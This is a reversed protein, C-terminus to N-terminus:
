RVTNSTDLMQNLARNAVRVVYKNYTDDLAAKLEPIAPRAKEGIGDLTIAAKLRVWEQKNQLEDTLVALARDTHRNVMFLGRAAVVRVVAAEDGLAKRLVDAAPLGDAELNGLGIAAWYRVSPHDSEMKETLMSLDTRGPRGALAATAHLDQLFERNDRGPRRLLAYRSGYEEEAKVLQPEPILGLDKTEFMWDLHADRMRTLVDRYDEEGALNNIEHPDQEVDYLEEISKQDATFWDAAPPLTGEEAMQHFQKTVPSEEPTNMYQHYPKYPEYNRLYHYRKGRVMRIIDYREDMRDRAGFGYQREPPPDPGLFAQGQMYSPRELRALSMVTPGFDVSSVIRDAVSGPSAQMMARYKEPARIILPIHTGSDYLWRKARPLGVGHDSWFFVVTDEAVGAEELEELRDGVWYDMATILEYYDAWNKRVLPTDPYYPPPEMQDPDQRQAPTLRRTRKAHAEEGMRISGEHTGGYNFVAFFPTDESPRNKWHAEGSSEDWASDPTDFQYDEKANNTCYYGAERLYTSFPHVDSPLVPKISHETGEGGSRMHHMGLSTAYMGTIISNRNPACVGSTTFANAYRVGEEALADLNPTIASEYGYSGLHPNIDETSLWLINPRDAAPSDETARALIGPLALSAAGAGTKRVFERRNM